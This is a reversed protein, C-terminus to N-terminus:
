SGPRLLAVALLFGCAMAAVTLLVSRLSSFRAPSLPASQPLGALAAAAITSAHDRASTTGRRLELNLSQLASVADRCVACDALHLEIAAREAADLEGDLAASLRDQTEDCHM